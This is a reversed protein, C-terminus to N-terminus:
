FTLKRNLRFNGLNIQVNAKMILFNFVRMSVRFRETLQFIRFSFNAKFLEKFFDRNIISVQM